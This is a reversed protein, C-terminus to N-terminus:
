LKHNSNAHSYAKMPMTLFNTSQNAINIYVMDMIIEKTNARKQVGGWVVGVGRKNRSLTGHLITTRLLIAM